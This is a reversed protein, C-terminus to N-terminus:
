GNIRLSGLYSQQVRRDGVPHGRSGVRYRDCITGTARRVTHRAADATADPGMSCQM